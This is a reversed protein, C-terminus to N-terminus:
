TKTRQSLLRQAEKHWPGYDPDALVSHLVDDPKTRLQINPHTDRSKKVSYILGAIFGFGLTVVVYWSAPYQKYFEQEEFGCIWQVLAMLGLGVFCLGVVGAGRILRQTDRQLKNM